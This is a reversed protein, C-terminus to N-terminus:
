RTAQQRELEALVLQRVLESVTVRRHAALKHLQQHLEDSLNVTVRRGMPPDRFIYEPLVEREIM